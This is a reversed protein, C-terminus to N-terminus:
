RGLKDLATLYRRTMLDQVRRTAAGGRRAPLTAARSFATITFTLQGGDHRQLLFLEEGSEPHGPLTGYAFGHRDPEAIVYIVRCPIRVALSGIGLRMLVVANLEARPSSAAVRLGARQHVRWSVLDDAAGAFDRRHLVRSATVVRFGEPPTTASAGVADYTLPAASLQRFPEPDLRRIPMVVHHVAISRDSEVTCGTARHRRGCPSRIDADCRNVSRPLDPQEGCSRPVACFPRGVPRGITIGGDFRAAVDRM